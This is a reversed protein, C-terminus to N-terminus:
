EVRRKKDNEHNNGSTDEVGDVHDHDDKQQLDVENNEEQEEQEENEDDMKFEVNNKEIIAKMEDSSIFSNSILYSMMSDNEDQVAKDFINENATNVDRANAGQSILYEFIEPDESVLIPSDGDEDRLNIDAGNSLLFAILDKHGYSVAAHSVILYNYSLICKCDYHICSPLPIFILDYMPSYGTEDQSNISVGSSLLSKV